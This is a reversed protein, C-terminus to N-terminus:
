KEIIVKQHFLQENGLKDKSKITLIVDQSQIASLNLQFQHHGKSFVGKDYVALEQGLLNRIEIVIASSSELDLDINIFSNKGIPNPYIKAFDAVSNNKIISTTPSVNIYNTYTSDAQGFANIATFTVSYLGPANFVVEPRPSNFASNNVFSVTNPNFTYDYATNGLDIVKSTFKVTDLLQAVNTRDASMIAQPRLDMSVARPIDRYQMTTAIFEGNILSGYVKMVPLKIGKALWQYERTINPFAIGGQGTAYVSDQSVIDTQIKICNFTGYPTTISGYARVNNIRYGDSYYSALFPISANFSFSSSDRDNYDLPFQFVEDPNSFPNGIKFFGYKAGLGNRLFANSNNQYFEYVDTLEYAGYRLTDARKKGYFGAAFNSNYPTQSKPLFEEVGQVKSQISSLNWVANPTSINIQSLAASDIIAASFRLTDGSIPMDTNDITIQASLGYSSLFLLATIINKM